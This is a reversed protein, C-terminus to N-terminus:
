SLNKETRDDAALSMLMDKRHGFAMLCDSFFSVWNGALDLDKKLAALGKDVDLQAAVKAETFKIGNNDWGDRTMKDLKARKERYEAELKSKHVSMQFKWQIYNALIGPHTKRDKLDKITLDGKPDITAEIFPAKIM